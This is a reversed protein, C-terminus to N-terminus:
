DWGVEDHSELPRWAIIEPRAQVGAAEMVPAIQDQADEFFAHFSGEDPWEDVILLQGDDNGYFRHAILGHEKAREIISAMHDTNEATWSELKAADGPARLTIIVSM